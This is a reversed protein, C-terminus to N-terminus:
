EEEDSSAERREAAEHEKKAQPQLSDEGAPAPESEGSAAAEALAARQAPHEDPQPTAGFPPRNQPDDTRESM